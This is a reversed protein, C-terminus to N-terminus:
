HTGRQYQLFTFCSIPRKSKIVSHTFFLSFICKITKICNTKNIPAIWVFIAIFLCKLAHHTDEKLLINQAKDRFAYDTILTVTKIVKAKGFYM